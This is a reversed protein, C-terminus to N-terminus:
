WVKRGHDERFVHVITIVPFLEGVGHWITIRTEEVSGVTTTEIVSDLPRPNVFRDVEDSSNDFRM